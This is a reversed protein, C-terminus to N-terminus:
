DHHQAKKRMLPHEKGANIKKNNKFNKSLCENLEEAAKNCYGFWKMLYHDEHCFELNFIQEKCAPQRYESVKEHMLFVTEIGVCSM